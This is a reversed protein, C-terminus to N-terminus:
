AFQPGPRDSTPKPGSPFWAPWGPDVKPAKKKRFIALLRNPKKPPLFVQYQRRPQPQAELRRREREQREYRQRCGSHSKLNRPAGGFIEENTCYDCGARRETAEASHFRATWAEEEADDFVKRLYKAAASSAPNALSFGMFEMITLEAFYSEDDKPHIAQMSTQSTASDSSKSRKRSLGHVDSPYPRAPTFNFTSDLGMPPPTTISLPEPTSAEPEPVLEQPVRYLYCSEHEEDGPTNCVATVVDEAFTVKGTCTPSSPPTLTITPIVTCISSQSSSSSMPPSMEFSPASSSALSDDSASRTIGTKEDPSPEHTATIADIINKTQRKLISHVTKIPSSPTFYTNENAVIGNTPFESQQSLPERPYCTWVVDGAQPTQSFPVEPTFDYVIPRVRSGFRSKDRFEVQISSDPNNKALRPHSVPEATHVLRSQVAWEDLFQRRDALRRTENGAEIARRYEKYTSWTRDEEEKLAKKERIEREMARKEAQAAREKAKIRMDNEEKKRQSLDPLVHLASLAVRSSEEQSDAQVLLSTLITRVVSQLQLSECCRAM